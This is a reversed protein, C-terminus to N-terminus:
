ATRTAPSARCRAEFLPSATSQGATTTGPAACASIRGTNSRQNFDWSGGACRPQGARGEQKWAADTDRLNGQQGSRSDAAGAGPHHGLGNAAPARRADGTHTAAAGRRPGRLILELHKSPQYSTRRKGGARKVSPYLWDRLDRLTPQLINLRERDELKVSMHLEYLLRLAIPAGRGRTLSIGGGSDYLELLPSKVIGREVPEFGPLYAPGSPGAMDPLQLQVADEHPLTRVTHIPFIGVIRREQEAPKGLEFFERLLPGLPHKIGHDLKFAAIYWYEHIYALFLAFAARDLDGLPADKDAVQKLLAYTETKEQPVVNLVERLLTRAPDLITDSAGQTSSGGSSPSPRPQPHMTRLTQIVNDGFQRRWNM